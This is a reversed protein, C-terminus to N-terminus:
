NTNRLFSSSIFIGGFTIGVPRFTQSIFQIEDTQSLVMSFFVLILGFVIAFSVGFTFQKIMPRVEPTSVAYLKILYYDSLILYITTPLLVTVAGIPNPEFLWYTATKEVVSKFNFSNTSLALAWLLIFPGYSFLLFKGRKIREEGKLLAYSVTFILYIATTIILVILAMLYSSNEKLDNSLVRTLIEFSFGLSFLFFSLSILKNLIYDSKKRLVLLAILLCLLISVIRVLNYLLIYDGIMTTITM